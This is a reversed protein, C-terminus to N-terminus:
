GKEGYEFRSMKAKSMAKMDEPEWDGGFYPSTWGKMRIYSSFTCDPAEKGNCFCEYQRPSPLGNVIVVPIDNGLGKSFLLCKRRDIDTIEDPKVEVWANLSSIYFDPLYHTGDELVFGEKEYEWSWSLEDFFVAWRAELRSRFRYGRYFTQIAKM